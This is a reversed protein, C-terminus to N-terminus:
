APLTVVWQQKVTTPSRMAGTDQQRCPLVRYRRREERLRTMLDPRDPDALERADLDDHKVFRGLQWAKAHCEQAVVGFSFSPM